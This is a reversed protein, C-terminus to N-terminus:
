RRRRPMGALGGFGLLAATAPAPVVSGKIWFSLTGQFDITPNGGTLGDSPFTTVRVWRSPDADVFQLDLQYSQTGTHAMSDTVAASGPDVLNGITSGSFGPEQFIHESGLPLGEWGLTHPLRAADTAVLDDLFIRLPGTLGDSNRFRIMELTGRTTDYLSNATTGAFATLSAAALDVSVQHWGGDLAIVTADLNVFEIGGSTGGDAGIPAATGTERIGLSVTISQALAPAGVCALCLAATAVQDFRVM